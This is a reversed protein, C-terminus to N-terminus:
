LFVNGHEETLPEDPLSTRRENLLSKLLPSNSYTKYDTRDGPNINGSYELHAAADPIQKKTKNTKAEGRGPTIDRCIDV